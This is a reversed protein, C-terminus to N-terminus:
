QGSKSRKEGVSLKPYPIQSTQWVLKGDRFTRYLSQRGLNKGGRSNEAFFVMNFWFRLIVPFPVASHQGVFKFVMIQRTRKTGGKVFIKWPPPDTWTTMFDPRKSTPSFINVMWWKMVFYCFFYAPKEGRKSFSPRATKKKRM